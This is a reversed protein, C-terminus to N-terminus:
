ILLDRFHQEGLSFKKLLSNVKEKNLKKLQSYKEGAGTLIFVSDLKDEFLDIFYPSHSTFIFQGKTGSSDIFDMLERLIGVYIGNEPEEIIALRSTNFQRAYDANTIIVYVLALFKLTGNSLSQINLRNGYKDEIFLFVQEPSASYFNIEEIKPDIKKLIDLLNRFLRGNTVKLNYLVSSLNSGVSNLILFLPKADPQRIQQIGLDYYQWTYIYNKFLSARQNSSTDYLKYLMTTDTTQELSLWKEERHSFFHEEDLLRIHGEKNQLLTVSRNQGDTLILSEMKVAYLRNVTNATKVDEVSLSLSYEFNLKENQFFLQCICQFDITTKDIYINAVNWTEGIAEKIAESIPTQSSYSIFRLAQALNTKGANNMGTILNVAGPEFTLNVLSKFNDVYFKELM